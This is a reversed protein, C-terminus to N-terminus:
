MGLSVIYMEGSFTFYLIKFNDESDHDFLDFVNLKM